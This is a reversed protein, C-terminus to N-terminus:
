TAARWDPRPPRRAPGCTRSVIKGGQAILFTGSRDYTERAAFQANPALTLTRHAYDFGLAFRKLM